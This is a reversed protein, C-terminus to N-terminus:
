ASLAVCNRGNRKAVYVGRDAMKILEDFAAMDGTRAAVGVSISGVWESSGVPVRLVAVAARIAEALQMAGELPTKACVVFFEDGGLRCVLDDTRVANQLQRSLARLVADGSDHGYCDNVAKFGDADIMMCSLPTGQRESKAWETALTQMAYRRNNLGTLADTNALEDLRQNAETLERTREEVRTELTKNLLVLEQNRESVQHFLGNLAALLTETAPDKPSVQILYADESREGSHIAAIQSAMARDSGLIHYALWHTLFQLLYKAADHNGTSGSRLQAVEDLFGLHDEQHQLMHRPDIGL